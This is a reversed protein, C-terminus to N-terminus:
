CVQLLYLGRSQDNSSFIVGHVRGVHMPHTLLKDITGIEIARFSAMHGHPIIWLDIMSPNQLEDVLYLIIPATSRYLGQM